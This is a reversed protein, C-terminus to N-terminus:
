HSFLFTIVVSLLLTNVNVKFWTGSNLYNYIIESIEAIHVFEHLKMHLLQCIQIQMAQTCTATTALVPAKTLICRLRSVQKYKPRFTSGRFM